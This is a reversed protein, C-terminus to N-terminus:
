ENELLSYQLMNERQEDRKAKLHRVVSVEGVRVGFSFEGGFSAPLKDPYIAELYAILEDSIQPIKMYSGIM